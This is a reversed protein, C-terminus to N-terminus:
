VKTDSITHESFVDGVTGDENFAINFAEKSSNEPDFNDYVRLSKLTDFSGSGRMHFTSKVCDTLFNVVDEKDFLSGGLDLFNRLVTNGFNGKNDTVKKSKIYEDHVSPLSQADFICVLPKIGKNILGYFEDLTALEVRVGDDGEFISIIFDLEKKTNTFDEAVVSFCYASFINRLASTTQKLKKVNSNFNLAVEGVPLETLFKVDMNILPFQVAKTLAMHNPSGGRLIALLLDESSDCNFEITSSNISSSKKTTKLVTFKSLVSESSDFEFYHRRELTITVDYGNNKPSKEVLFNLELHRDSDERLEEDVSFSSKDAEKDVSFEGNSFRYTTM